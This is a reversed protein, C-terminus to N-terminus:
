DRIINQDRGAGVSVMVVRVSLEQEIYAILKKVQLPLQSSCVISSTSTKWGEFIRYIPRCHRMVEPDPIAVGIMHGNRLKIRGVHYDPGTYEYAYCVRVRECEDLVDLKTLIVCNGTFMRSYRMLPLDLWGTRRPRGTTRGYEDGRKRIGVGQLFENADNVGAESYIEAEREKSAWGAYNCWEESKIGGLETPFPGKGVRTMYFAKMVGLVLDIRSSTLGVGRALGYVTCDSSTVYPYTGHDISLLNGQAGELLIKKRGSMGEMYADTDRIMSQLFEGYERYQDVIASLDFYGGPQYFKGSGLDPHHLIEEILSLDAQRFYPMKRELNKGIKEALVDPNLLDNVVLGIRAYHDEYAPGIGKGTTGIKGESANSELLRDLALHFPLVLKAQFSIMLQNHSIGKKELLNLEECAIKPDFAVGTGIVNIKGECDHLIGSPILHFVYEEEGLKITHGANAGGTGRAIIDAWFSTLWDVIKGKGTDGWQMCVVAVTSADQLVCSMDM